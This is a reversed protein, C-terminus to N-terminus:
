VIEPHTLPGADHVSVMYDCRMAVGSVPCLKDLENWVSSLRNLKDVLTESRMCAFSVIM